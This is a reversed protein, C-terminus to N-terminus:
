GSSPCMWSWWPMGAELTEPIVETTGAQRLEKLHLEDRTRVVIPVHPNLSRANRLAHLAATLDDHAIIMFSASALGASDLVSAESSDGFFVPQGALRAERVISPDIDLAIMEIAKKELPRSVSQGIRGYGCVIVHNSGPVPPEAVEM